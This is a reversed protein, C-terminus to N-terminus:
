TGEDEKLEDEKIDGLLQKKYNELAEDQKDLHLADSLSVRFGTANTKTNAPM